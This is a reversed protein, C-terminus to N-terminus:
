QLYNGLQRVARVEDGSAPAPSHQAGFEGKEEDADPLQEGGADKAFLALGVLGLISLAASMAILSAANSILFASLAATM